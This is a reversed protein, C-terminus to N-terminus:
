TDRRRGFRYVITHVLGALGNPLYMTCLVFILGLVGYWHPTLTSLWERLVEFVAVGLVPGLLTGTGGLLVMIVVDGSTSWHLMQPGVYFMLSALLAGSIGAYFGSITFVVQRLRQVNFGIQEARVENAKIARLAHGFPSARLLAAGAVALVFVGLVFGYYARDDYFDVGLFTPRPVGPLGDTGGTLARLKTSAAIYIMQALAMTLLAFFLGSVRRAFISFVFALAGGMLGAVVLAPLFGWGLRSTLLMLAYAGTGFFAAHGFSLMGTIGFVLDFGIAFIAWVLILIALSLGSKGHMLLPVLVIAATISGTVVSVSRQLNM